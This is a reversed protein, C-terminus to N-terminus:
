EFQMSSLKAIMQSVHTSGWEGGPRVISYARGFRYGREYDEAREDRSSGREDESAGSQRSREDLEAVTSVEGFRVGRGDPSPGCWYDGHTIAQQRAATAERQVRALAAGLDAFSDFGPFIM